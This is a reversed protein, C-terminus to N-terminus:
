NGKMEQDGVSFWSYVIAIETKNEMIETFGCYVITAEMKNEMIGVNVWLVFKLNRLEAGRFGLGEKICNKM